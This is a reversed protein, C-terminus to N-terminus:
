HAIYDMRGGDVTLLQATIWGSDPSALFAVANAIDEPRGVRGTMALAAIRKTVAEWETNGRDRRAMETEVFGPAIANVTIGHHGLEMAFRRTLVIVEAKSAAYFTTGPLSTGIGANSAINVIRGYGRERMGRMVARTTFIVGDANVHRMRSLHERDYTDLTAPYSVGANNVLITPPGLTATVRDVMMEVDADDSVDARLAIARGGAQEIEALLSEAPEAHSVYNIAVSAGERALRRVIARGIGRAGGTVLAVQEVWSM